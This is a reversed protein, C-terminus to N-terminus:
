GLICGQVNLFGSRAVKATGNPVSYWCVIQLHTGLMIGCVVAFITAPSTPAPTSQGDSPRTATPTPMNANTTHRNHMGPAQPSTVVGAACRACHMGPKYFDFAVLQAAALVISDRGEDDPNEISKYWSLPIWEYRVVCGWIPPPM